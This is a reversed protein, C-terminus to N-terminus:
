MGAYKITTMCPTNLLLSKYGIMGNKFTGYIAICVVSYVQVLDQAYLVCSFRKEKMDCPLRYYSYSLFELPFSLNLLM